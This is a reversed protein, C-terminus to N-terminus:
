SGGLVEGIRDNFLDFQSLNNHSAGPITTFDIDPVLSKLDVAHQYPILEDETGHFIYVPCTVKPLYLDSRFKYKLLISTPLFRMQEGALREISYYPTELILLKPAVQAALFSAIGSGLSRGYIVIQSADYQRSLQDFIFRADKFLNKESLPGTSKGYSRYDPLVVDYGHPLLDPAIYGWNDLARANGHFYLIVGKPEPVSFRLAHLKVGKEPHFYIEEATNGFHVFQYDEPLVDPYFIFSEQRFYIYFCLVLYLFAFFLIIKM